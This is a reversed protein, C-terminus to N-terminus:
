AVSGGFQFYEIHALRAMLWARLPAAGHQLLMTNWDSKPAANPRLPALRAAKAGFSQLAPTLKQAAQDGAGNADNDFALLVRRSASGKVIWVLAETCGLAVGPM